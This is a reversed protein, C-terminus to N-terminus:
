NGKKSWFDPMIHFFTQGADGEAVVKNEFCYM